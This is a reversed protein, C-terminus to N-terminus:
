LSSKERKGRDGPQTELIGESQGETLNVDKRGTKRRYTGSGRINIVTVPVTRTAHFGFGFATLLIVIRKSKLDRCRYDLLTTLIGGSRREEAGATTMM